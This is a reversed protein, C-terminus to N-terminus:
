AAREPPDLQAARSSHQMAFMWDPDEPPLQSCADLTALDDASLRVNAAAINDVVQEEKNASVIVGTVVPQHLLWALAIQAVPVGHREAIPRM